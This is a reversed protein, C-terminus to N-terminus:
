VRQQEGGACQQENDGAGHREFLRGSISSLYDRVAGMM